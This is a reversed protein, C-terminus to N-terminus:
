GMRGYTRGEDDPGELLRVLVAKSVLIRRGIRAAPLEGRRIASYVSNEAVNLVEATDRVTLVDPLDELRSQRSSPMM